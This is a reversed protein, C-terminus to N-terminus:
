ELVKSSILFYYIAAEGEGRITGKTYIWVGHNTPGHIVYLKEGPKNRRSSRSRITKKIASANLISEKVDDEDIGDVEMELGAKDTFLFRGARVLRKIEVLVAEM